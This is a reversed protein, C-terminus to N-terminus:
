NGTIKENEEDDYCEFEEEPKDYLEFFPNLM